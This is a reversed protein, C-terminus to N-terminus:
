RDAQWTGDRLWAAADFPHALMMAAPGRRLQYLRGEMVPDDRDQVFDSLNATALVDAGGAWATELVHRDESDRIPIVGVGGLTLTPGIYAYGTIAEVLAAAEPPLFSLQDVLVRQLRELM